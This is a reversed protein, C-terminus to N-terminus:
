VTQKAKLERVLASLSISPDTLAAASVPAQALILDKAPRLDRAAGVGAAFVLRGGETQFYLCSGDARTRVIAEAKPNFLGFIQLNRDYQDSWFWPVEAYPAMLGVQALNRAVAIAGNQANQWSELSIHRGFITNFHVAVDGVAFIYPDSSAGFSDTVIGNAVTLGAEDAIECNPEAGIGIVVLDAPLTQGDSTKALLAGDASIFSTIQTAFRFQVGHARHEKCLNEGLARPAVRAIPADAFEVVTVACGRRIAASAVELGIFGAGIVLLRLGPQLRGRLIRSDELSRLYLCRRDDGGPITLRRPRRGTALILGGYSLSRGDSLELRHAARDIRTASIGSEFNVSWNKLFGPDHVWTVTEQSDDLLMEKSLSPREYPLEPEEGILTLQGSYGNLRLAEVTRGGAQGAGVVVLGDQQAAEQVCTM